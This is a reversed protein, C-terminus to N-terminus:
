SRQHVLTTDTYAHKRSEPLDQNFDTIRMVKDRNNAGKM